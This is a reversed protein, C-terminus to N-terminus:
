SVTSIVTNFGGDTKATQVNIDNRSTGMRRTRMPSSGRAMVLQEMRESEQKTDKRMKKLDRDEENKSFAWQEALGWKFREEKGM